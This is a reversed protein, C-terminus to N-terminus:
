LFDPFHIFFLCFRDDFLDHVSILYDVLLLEINCPLRWTVRDEPSHALCLVTGSSVVTEFPSIRCGLSALDVLLSEVLRIVFVGNRLRIDLITASGVLTLVGGVLLGM